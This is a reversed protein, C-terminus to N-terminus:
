VISHLSDLLCAFADARAAPSADGPFPTQLTALVRHLLSEFVTGWYSTSAVKSGAAVRALAARLDKRSALGAWLSLIAKLVLFTWLMKRFKTKVLKM